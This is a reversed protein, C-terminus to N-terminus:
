PRDGQSAAATPQVGLHTFVTGEDPPPTKLDERRMAVVETGTLLGYSALPDAMMPSLGSVVVRRVDPRRPVLASVQALAQRRLEGTVMWSRMHCNIVFVQALLYVLGATALHARLRPLREYLQHWGLGLLLAWFTSACLLYRPSFSVLSVAEGRKGFVGYPLMTVFMMALLAVVTRREGRWLATLLLALGVVTIVVFPAPPQPVVNIVGLAYRNRWPDLFERVMLAARAIIMHPRTDIMSEDVLARSPCIALKLAVYGAAVVALAVVVRVMRERPCHRYWLVIVALPAALAGAEKTLLACLVCGALVLLHRRRGDRAYLTAAVLAPLVWAMVLPHGLCCANLVAQDYQVLCVYALLAPLRASLPWDWLRLLWATCSTIWLLLLVPAACYPLPNPGFLRWGVGALANLLPTFMNFGRQTFWHLPEGFRHAAADLWIHDEGQFFGPICRGWLLLALVLVGETVLVERRQTVFRCGTPGDYCAGLRGALLATLCAPKNPM